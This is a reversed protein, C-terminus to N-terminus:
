PPEGDAFAGRTHGSHSRSARPVRSPGGGVDSRRLLDLSARPAGSWARAFWHVINVPLMPGGRESAIVPSHTDVDAALAHLATVLDPHTPVVRGRGGKSAADSLEIAAGVEGGAGFVKCWTLAAIEKARLGAKVSLLVMVDNRLPKRSNWAFVRLADIEADSLIKARRIAM